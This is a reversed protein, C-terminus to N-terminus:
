FKASTLFEERSPFLGELANFLMLNEPFCRKM